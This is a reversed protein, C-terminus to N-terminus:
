SRTARYAAIPKAFGALTRRARIFIQSQEHNGDLTSTKKPRAIVEFLNVALESTADYNARCFWMRHQHKKHVLQPTLLMVERSSTRRGTRRAEECTAVQMGRGARGLNVAM